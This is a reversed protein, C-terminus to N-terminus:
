NSSIFQDLFITAEKKVALYDKYSFDKEFIIHLFATAEDSFEEVLLDRKALMLEFSVEPNLSQYRSIADDLDSKLLNATTDKLSEVSSWVSTRKGLSVYLSDSLDMLKTFQTDIVDLMQIKAALSDVLAENQSYYTDFDSKVKYYNAQYDEDLLSLKQSFDANFSSIDTKVDKSDSILGVSFRKIDASIDVYEELIATTYEKELSSVDTPLSLSSIFGLCQVAKFLATDVLGKARDDYFSQIVVLKKDLYTILQDKKADLDAQLETADKSLTTSTTTSTTGVSLTSALTSSFLLSFASFVSLFKILFSSKMPSNSLFYFFNCM